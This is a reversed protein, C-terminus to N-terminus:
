GAKEQRSSLIKELEEDEDIKDTKMNELIGDVEKGGRLNAKILAYYMERDMPVVEKLSSVFAEVEEVQGNDGLWSLISSIVGPKPRWLMNEARLALAEKMCEVAKEMKQKAVYGAALIGWSNPIPTKGKDVIERLKAEAKEVLGKQSYGILLINPMRFDYLHCSSEWEKLLEEAEELEGLKVLSGTITMYDRNIQKKLAAKKLGWIRMVESKNGLSAYLSILNNYGLADKDIKEEAKKLAAIAKENIGAKIYFNAVMTYTSWDMSIHPESEMEELLKEMNEIDSRAGYSNICIRYSFNNPSIGDEKMESLVNPIKELMGVHTYLGMLNNYTLNSSVFGMEKMKQVHSLSKDILGERVYCSLLAGYTKDCKDQDSMYNFYSEAANLGRVSGILDLQVARDGSSFPCLGKNSMWESVELAHKHRKRRRLDRIIRQLELDRVKKGEDVWLTTHGALSRM